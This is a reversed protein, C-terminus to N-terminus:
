SLDVQTSALYDQWSWVWFFSLGPWHIILANLCLKFQSILWRCGNCSSFGFGTFLWTGGHTRLIYLNWLSSGNWISREAIFWIHDLYSLYSKFARWAACVIDLKVQSVEFHSSRRSSRTSTWTSVEQTFSIISLDAALWLAPWAMLTVGATLFAPDTNNM